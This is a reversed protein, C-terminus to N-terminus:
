APPRRGVAYRNTPLQRPERSAVGQAVPERLEIGHPLVRVTDWNGLIVEGVPFAALVDLKNTSHNIADWLAEFTRGCDEALIEKAWATRDMRNERAELARYRLALQHIATDSRTPANSEPQRTAHFFAVVAGILLLAAGRVLLSKNSFARM